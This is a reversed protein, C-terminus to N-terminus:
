SHGQRHGESVQGDVVFVIADAEAVAAAAQKGILDKLGEAQGEREARSRAEGGGGGVVAVADAAALADMAPQARGGRKARASAAAPGGKGSTSAGAPLSVIGGTDAMLFSHSAWDTRAYLRDRTM